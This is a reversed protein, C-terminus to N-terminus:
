QWTPNIITVPPGQPKPRPAPRPRPAPAVPAPPTEEPEVEAPEPAPEPEPEETVFDNAANTSIDPQTPISGPKLKLHDGGALTLSRNQVHVKVSGSKVEIKEDGSDDVKVTLNLTQKKAFKKKAKQIDEWVSDQAQFCTESRGSACARAAAKLKKRIQKVHKADAARALPLVYQKFLFDLYELGYTGSHSPRFVAVERVKLRITAGPTQIAVVDEKLNTSNIEFEGRTIRLVSNDEAGRPEPVLLLADEGLDIKTSDGFLLSVSSNGGTQVRDGQYLTLGNKASIDELAGKRTVQVKGQADVVRAAKLAAHPTQMRSGFRAIGMQRHVFFGILALNAAAGLALLFFRFREASTHQTQTLVEM